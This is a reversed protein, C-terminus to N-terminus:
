CLIGPHGEIGGTPKVHSMETKVADASEVRRPGDDRGTRKDGSISTTMSTLGDDKVGSSVEVNALGGLAAVGVARSGDQLKRWL